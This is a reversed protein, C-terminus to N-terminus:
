LTKIQTQNPDIQGLHGFKLDSWVDIFLIECLNDHLKNVLLLVLNQFPKM